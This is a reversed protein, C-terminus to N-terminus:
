SVKSYAIFYHALAGSIKTPREPSSDKLYLIRMGGVITLVGGKGGTKRNM